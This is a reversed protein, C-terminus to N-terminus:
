PTGVSIDNFILVLKKYSLFEIRQKLDLKTDLEISSFRQGESDQQHM